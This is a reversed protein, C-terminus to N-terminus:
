QSEAWLSYSKKINLCGLWCSAGSMITDWWFLFYVQDFSLKKLAIECHVFLLLLNGVLLVETEAERHLGCLLFKNLAHMLFDVFITHYSIKGLFFVSNSYVSFSNQVTLSHTCIPHQIIFKSYVKLGVFSKVKKGRFIRWVRWQALLRSCLEWM